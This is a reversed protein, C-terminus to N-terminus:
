ALLLVAECHDCQTPSYDEDELLVICDSDVGNVAEHNSACDGCVIDGVDHTRFCILHDPAEWLSAESERIIALLM